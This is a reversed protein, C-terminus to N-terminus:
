RWITARRGRAQSRSGTPGARDGISTTPIDPCTPSSADRDTGAKPGELWYRSVRCGWTEAFLVSKSDHAMCMGNAFLLNRVITRTPARRPITAFSGATAAGKWRTSWGNRSGTASRRRASISRATRRSISITPWGCAPITSSRCDALSQDGGDDQPCQAAQRRSLPGHRRHLRRPRRGQRLGHRAAPRRCPRLGRTKVYIPRSFASSTARGCVAISTTTATSFSTKPDTSRAWASSRSTAAPPREDCLAFRPRRRLLPAPPLALYAPSVYVKARLSTDGDAGACTSPSRSCCCAASWWRRRAPRCPWAQRARQDAALRHGRGDAGQRDLRTRRRRQQRRAAGGHGVTLELGLGTDPRRRFAAGCLAVGALGTLVGSVVYSLCVTRRVPIGANYAARRSGGVAMIRWGIRLRTLVVHAVIAIVILVVFSLPVGLVSGAGVFDWLTPSVDSSAIQVSYIQLLFEVIARILTLMVLTTLFARLRLYGILLGNILGVLAAWALRRRRHRGRGAM